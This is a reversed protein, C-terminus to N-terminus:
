AGPSGEIELPDSEDETVHADSDTLSSYALVSGCCVLLSSGVLELWFGIQPIAKADVFSGTENGLAGIRNADPVDIILFILLAVLGTVALAVAATQSIAGSEGDGGLGFWLCVVLLALAILGLILMAWGHQDQASVVLEETFGPESLDPTLMFIGTFQAAALAGAGVAVGCALPLTLKPWRM